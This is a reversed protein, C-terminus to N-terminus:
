PRLVQGRFPSLPQAEPGDHGVQSEVDASCAAGPDVGLRLVERSGNADSVAALSVSSLDAATKKPKKRPTSPIGFYPRPREDFPVFPTPKARKRVPPWQLGTNDSSCRVNREASKGGGDARAAMLRPKPPAGIAVAKATAGFWIPHGVGPTSPIADAAAKAPSAQKSKGKGSGKQSSEAYWCDRKWHGVRGCIPCPTTPAEGKATKGFSKGGGKAGKGKPLRIGFAALPNSLESVDMPYASNQLSMQARRVSEVEQKLLAWTTVRSSNLILHQRLGGEPLQRLVVGIRINDPFDEGSSAEYRAAERDFSALRAAVDGEFSFSLLELLLGAHRVLSAPEHFMVLQRWSELGNGHGANIVRTLASEKCLMVLMHYLQQSWESDPSTMAATLMPTASREAALMLQGLRGNVASAYSRFVVSWDRWHASGDFHDPKGLLRLDVVGPMMHLAQPQPPQPQSAAAAASTAQQTTLSAMQTQMQRLVTDRRDLEATFAQQQEAFAQRIEDLNAMSTAYGTACALLFLM